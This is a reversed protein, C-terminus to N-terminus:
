LVRDMGHGALLIPVKIEIILNLNEFDSGNIFFLLIIKIRPIGGFQDYKLAM